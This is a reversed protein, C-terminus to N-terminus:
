YSILVGKEKQKLYFLILEVAGRADEASDHGLSTSNVVQIRKGLLKECLVKLSNKWITGSPNSAAPPQPRPFLAATDIVRPHLLRLSILDNELGHGILITTTSM